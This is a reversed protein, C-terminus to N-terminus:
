INRDANKWYPERLKTKFIKGSDERPLTEHFDIGKPHKYKALKGDLWQRVDQTNAKWHPMPQIAAIIKEGFEDDPAGFVAVDEIFPADSLFNEIEVPFINVGGSIIMDKKRDSVFLYDENDLWGMDGVSVHGDIEQRTKTENAESYVFKGFADTKIYIDGVQGPGLEEKNSDYIKISGGQQIKGVTGPRQLAEESSVLTVFGLESAGYTEWFVPGWWSIMASKIEHSWPSGTSVCFEVSSLDYKDKITKPLKLLRAMMTPVLYIHTIKRNEIIQLFNEPDFRPLITASMTEMALAMSILTSPGSHYLPAATMFHAGVKFSFMNAALKRLTQYYDVLGNPTAKQRRIIGKPKGTSGSTYRMMPRMPFKNLLPEEKEILNAWEPVQLNNLELLNTINYSLKTAKSPMVGIVQIGELVHDLRKIFDRHSIVLKANCDKLIESIETQTGHWNVQVTVAGALAISRMIECCTVDNRMIIVVTDEECVGLNRLLSAGKAARVEM